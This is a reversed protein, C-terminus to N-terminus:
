EDLLPPNDFQLRDPGDIVDMDSLGEVVQLGRPQRGAQQDVEALGPHFQAAKTQVSGL